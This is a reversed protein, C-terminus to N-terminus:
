VYTCVSLHPLYIGYNDLCLHMVGDLEPIQCEMAILKTHYQIYVAINWVIIIRMCRSDLNVVLM